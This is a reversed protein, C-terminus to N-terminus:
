PVAVYTVVLQPAQALANAEKSSFTTTRAAGSGEADDRIMWGFNTSGGAVFDAVDATVTAGVVYTGTTHNECGVPLGADFSDSRSATPPNNLSVGFPQNNWTLVTEAWATPVRFIDLTRCAPSAASLYLRLTALRITVSAPIAPTCATLDFRIYARRNATGSSTVTLAATTGSNGTPTSQRVEADAVIATTAPTATLTCTRYPTLAASALSLSAASGAVGSSGISVGVALAGLVFASRVIPRSLISRRV